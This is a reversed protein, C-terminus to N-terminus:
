NIVDKMKFELSTIQKSRKEEENEIGITSHLAFEMDKHINQTRVYACMTRIVRAISLSFM